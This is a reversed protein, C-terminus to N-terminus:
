DSMASARPKGCSEGTQLDFDDQAMKVNIQVTRKMVGIDITKSQAAVDCLGLIQGL